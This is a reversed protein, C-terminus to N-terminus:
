RDNTPSDAVTPSDAAATTIATAAAPSAPAGESKKEIVDRIKELESQITQHAKDTLEKMDNTTEKIWELPQPVNKEIIEELQRKREDRVLKLKESDIMSGGSSGVGGQGEEQPLVITIGDLFEIMRQAYKQPPQCSIGSQLLLTGTMFTEVKKKLIYETLIDILGVYVSSFREDVLHLSKIAFRDRSNGAGSSSSASPLTEDNYDVFGLLFSYDMLAHSELWHVDRSLIQILEDKDSQHEFCLFRENQILDLDKFITHVGKSKEKESASRGHTSGKVDYGSLTLSTFSSLLLKSESIPKPSGFVNGQIIFWYIHGMVM